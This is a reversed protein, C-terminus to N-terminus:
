ARKQGAQLQRLVENYRTQLRRAVDMIEPSPTSNCPGRNQNLQWTSGYNVLEATALRVGDKRISFIRSRGQHCYQAYSGVCHHMKQGELALDVSSTLPVVDYGNDQYAALLSTWTYHTSIRQRVQEEHWADSQRKIWTWGAKKQHADPVGGAATYQRQWDSAVRYEGNIFASPKVGKEKQQQKCERAAAGDFWAPTSFVPRDTYWRAYRDISATLLEYPPIVGGEAYHAAVQIIQRHSLHTLMWRMHGIPMRCLVKWGAEKLGQRLLVEKLSRFANADFRITDHLCADNILPLLGPAQKELLKWTTVDTAILNYTALTAYREQARRALRWAEKDLLGTLAGTVGALREWYQGYSVTGLLLITAANRCRWELGRLNRITLDTRGTLRTIEAVALLRAKMHAAELVWKGLQDFRVDHWRKIGGIGNPGYLEVQNGTTKRIGFDELLTIRDPFVQVPSGHQNRWAKALEDMQEGVTQQAYAMTMRSGASGSSTTKSSAM